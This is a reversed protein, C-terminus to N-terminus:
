KSLIYAMEEYPHEYHETDIIDNIDNPYETKYRYYMIQGKNNEYIYENLDPNSRFLEISSKDGVRKYKSMFTIILEDDPYLRQLLHIKEHVLTTILREDSANLIHEVPMFILDSRTHPMGDEYNTGKFFVLKWRIKDFTKSYSRLKINAKQICQNLKEICKKIIESEIIFDPIIKTIYDQYCECKRARLDYISLNKFFNDNDNRIFSVADELQVREHNETPLTLSYFLILIAIIITFGFIYDKM